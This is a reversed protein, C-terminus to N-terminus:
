SEDVNGTVQCFRCARMRRSRLEFENRDVTGASQCLPVGLMAASVRREKDVLGFIHTSQTCAAAAAMIYSGALTHM